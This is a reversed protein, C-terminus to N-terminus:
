QSIAVWSSSLTSKQKPLRFVKAFISAELIGILFYLGVLTRYPQMPMRLSRSSCSASRSRKPYKPM